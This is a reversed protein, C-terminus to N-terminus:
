AGAGLPLWPLSEAETYCATILQIASLPALGALGVLADNM